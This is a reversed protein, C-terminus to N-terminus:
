EKKTKKAGGTTGKGLEENEEKRKGEETPLTSLPTLFNLLVYARLYIVRTCM